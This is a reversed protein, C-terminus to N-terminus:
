FAHDSTSFSDTYPLQSGILSNKGPVTVVFRWVSPAGFQGLFVPPFQGALQASTVLSGLWRQAVRWPYRYGCDNLHPRYHPGAPKGRESDSLIRHTARGTRSHESTPQGTM